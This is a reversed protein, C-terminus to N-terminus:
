CPKSGGAGNGCIYTVAVDCIKDRITRHLASTRRSGPKRRPACHGAGAYATMDGVDDGLGPGVHGSEGGCLV